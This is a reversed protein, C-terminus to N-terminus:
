PNRDISESDAVADGSSFVNRAAYAGEIQDALERLLAVATVARGVRLFSRILRIRTAFGVIPALDRPNPKLKMM